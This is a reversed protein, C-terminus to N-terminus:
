RTEDTFWPRRRYAAVRKALDDSTAALLDVTDDSLRTGRVNRHPPDPVPKRLARILERADSEPLVRRLAAMLEEDTFPIEDPDVM